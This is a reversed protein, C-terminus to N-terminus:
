AGEVVIFGMAEGLGATLPHGTPVAACGLALSSDLQLVLEASSEGQHVRVKQGAVLGMSQASSPHLTVCIETGLRTAQLAPSRRVLPDAHYGSVEGLREVTGLSARIKVVPAHNLGNHLAEASVKVLDPSIETRIEEISEQNFGPLDFLNGLVRWVKWGPRAEGRPPVVGNFAQVRGEMSIFTGATETFPAVPLMVTAWNEADGKFASLAVVTQAQQLAALTLAPDAGDLTPEVGMVFYAQRPQRLMAQADLGPSAHTNLPGRQPVAGALWAGVSNAAVGLQGFPVEVMAALTQAIYYLTSYDPHHQAQHGLIVAGHGAADLLDTAVRQAQESPSSGVLPLLGAPLEKSTRQAVVGLVEALLGPWESPKAVASSAISMAWDEARAGLRHIKAGSRAVRRLRVALLPQESRLNSGVLLVARLDSWQAVPLGLWPTGQYLSDLTFDAQRTRHDINHCGLERLLKQALYLEELTQHPSLLAGIAEGGQTHLVKEVGDVVSQLAEAWSVQVWQGDRKVQPQLLRDESHLAQYSFRDRDALWCENVAENKRPLVRVVETREKVQVEVNTGLGDHPSISPFRTLEWSRASFRFPKSTLAGVPCLDIANGSVESDVTLDMFALIESHEGRGGVGLEMIGAIEQGYRVCRTCLICRTMDTSILPGLDKNSVVRKAEQYRSASGGYGVSVDQLKCEGGQDCIPCDLPHNILLFEMVSKQAQVAMASHTQVKMGEAVPTACAPLPKPAKEVQVLCMRCNAAISLKRHYCFHPIKIGLQKAADMVTRGAEIQTTQGDIELTLM